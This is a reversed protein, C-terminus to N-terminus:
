KSDDLLSETSKNIINIYESLIFNMEQNSFNRINQIERFTKNHLREKRCEGRRFIDYWKPTGEYNIRCISAINLHSFNVNLGNFVSETISYM